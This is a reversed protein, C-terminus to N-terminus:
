RDAETTSPADSPALKRVAEYAEYFSDCRAEGLSGSYAPSFNCAAAHRLDQIAALAATRFAKVVKQPDVPTQSPSSQPTAEPTAKCAPGDDKPGLGFTEASRAETGLAADLARAMHARVKSKFAESKGAWGDHHPWQTREDGIMGDYYAQAAAEVRSPDFGYAPVTPGPERSGSGAPPEGKTEEKGSGTSAVLKGSRHATVLAFVYEAMERGLYANNTRHAETQVELCDRRLHIPFPAAKSLRELEGLDGGAGAEPSPASPITEFRGDRFEDTFRAWLKGTSACRYVTLRNGDRLHRRTVAEDDATYVLEGRAVQAEAEGLVEYETGRKLHRVRELPGVRPNSATTIPNTAEAM